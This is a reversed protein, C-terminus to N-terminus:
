GANKRRVTPGHMSSSPPLDDKVARQTLRLLLDITGKWGQSPNKEADSTVAPAGRPQQQLLFQAMLEERNSNLSRAEEQSTSSVEIQKWGPLDQKVLQILREHLCNEMIPSTPGSAREIACAGDCTVAVRLWNLLPKFTELDELKSLVTRVRMLAARPPTRHTGMFLSVLHAPLYM